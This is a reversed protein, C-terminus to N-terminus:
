RPTIPNADRRSTPTVVATASDDHRNAFLTTTFRQAEGIRDIEVAMADVVQEMRQLRADEENQRGSAGGRVWIRRAFAIAFPLLLLFAGAALEERPLPETRPPVSTHAISPQASARIRTARPSSAIETRIDNIQADTLDLESAAAAYEHQVVASQADFQPRDAVAVRDRHLLLTSRHEELNKIRIKLQGQRIELHPLLKANANEQASTPQAITPM